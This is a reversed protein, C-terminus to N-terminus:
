QRERERDSRRREILAGAVIAVAIMAMGAWARTSVPDDFLMWSAAVIMALVALLLAMDAWNAM